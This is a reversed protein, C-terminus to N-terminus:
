RGARRGAAQPRSQGAASQPPAKQDAAYSRRDGGQEPVSAVPLSGSVPGPVNTPTGHLDTDQLGHAIDSAAQEIVQRPGLAKRDVAAGAPTQDPLGAPAVAPPRVRHRSQKM